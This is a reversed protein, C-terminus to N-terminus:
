SILSSTPRVSSACIGTQLKQLMEAAEMAAMSLFYGLQRLRLDESKRTFQALFDSSFQLFAIKAHVESAPEPAPRLTESMKNKRKAKSGGAAM